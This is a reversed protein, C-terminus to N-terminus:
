ALCKVMTTAASFGMWRRLYPYPHIHTPAFGLQEYLRRADPNTDVVDLRVSRYGHERAFEFVAHLLLTGVGQGRASAAVALADLLLQGERWPQRDFSLALAQLSGRLWGYEQVFYALKWQIFRRGEHQLGALGAMGLPGLAAIVLGPEIAKELIAISHQRDGTIAGVKRAFAEYYIEAARRRYHEPLGRCIQIDTTRDPM